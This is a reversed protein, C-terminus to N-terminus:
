APILERLSGIAQFEVTSKEPGKSDPRKVAICQEIGYQRAARLVPLSDDVLVSTEPDFPWERRLRDWFGAHEKPLGLDHACVIGDFHDGLGTRELKLALTKGHANTVLALRKGRARIAGLFEIAHPQLAIKDAVEYKLARIDLGLDHSWYDVCYWNLTGAAADYRAHLQRAAEALAIGNKQAYRLPVHEHWFYNDFHLDLLTGDMDLLATEISNWPIM